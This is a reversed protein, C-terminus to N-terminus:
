VACGNGDGDGGQPRVLVGQNLLAAHVNEQWGAISSFESSLVLDASAKEWSVGKVTDFFLATEIYEKPYWLGNAVKALNMIDASSQGNSAALELLGLMASGHNCDQYFTSNGCCPRFINEALRYVLSSQESSLTLTEIKNFYAAGNDKLGLTWGATSAYRALSDGNLPSKDNFVAKTAIGLPWLLNLNFPANEVSLVLEEPNGDLVNSVWEPVPGRNKHVDMFKVPDIVGAEMMKVVPKSIDLGTSVSKSPQIANVASRLPMGDVFEVLRPTALGLGYAGGLAAMWGLTRRRTTTNSMITKLKRRPLVLNSWQLDHCFPLISTGRRKGAVDV